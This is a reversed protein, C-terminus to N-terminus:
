GGQFIILVPLLLVAIRTIVYAKPYTIHTSDANPSSALARGKRESRRKLELAYRKLSNVLANWLMKM